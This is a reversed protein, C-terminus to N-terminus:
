TPQAATVTYNGDTVTVFGWGLGCHCGQAGLNVWAEADARSFTTGVAWTDPLDGNDTIRVVRFSEGSTSVSFALRMKPSGANCCGSSAVFHACIVSRVVQFPDVIDGSDGDCDGSKDNELGVFDTGGDIVPTTIAWTGNIPAGLTASGTLTGQSAPVAAAISPVALAAALLALLAFKKM